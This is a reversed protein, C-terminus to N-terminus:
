DNKASLIIRRKIESSSIEKTYPLYILEIEHHNLWEQDIRMQKHYDKTKWDDGVAIIDPNVSLISPKSDANSFNEVIKDVYPCHRLSELREDYSMIPAAGKFKEVFDDRNLSVVVVDAYESCKKLFSQHGFHFLDFTGGTYLIKM